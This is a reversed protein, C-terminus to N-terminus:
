TLAQPPSSSSSSKLSVEASSSGSRAAELTESIALVQMQRSSRDATSEGKDKTVRRHSLGEPRPLREFAAMKMKLRPQPALSLKSCETVADLKEKLSAVEADRRQLKGRLKAISQRAVAALLRSEEYALEYNDRMNTQMADLAVTTEELKVTLAAVRAEAEALQHRLQGNDAALEENERLLRAFPDDEDLTELHHSEPREDDDESAPGISTTTTTTTSVITSDPLLALPALSDDCEGEDEALSGSRPRSTPWGELARDRVAGLIGCFAVVALITDGTADTQSIDLANLASQMWSELSGTNGGCGRRLRKDDDTATAAM